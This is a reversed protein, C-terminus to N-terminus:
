WFPCWGSYMKSLNYTSTAMAILKNAQEKVSLVRGDKGFDTGNLKSAVRMKMENSSQNLDKPTVESGDRISDQDLSTGSDDPTSLPDHVFVSLVLILVSANERLISSMHTFSSYYLGDYGTAGMARVMMRTLRFPVVEPLLKRHMAREFCDGFDIHVVRGSYRDILLNSPHRDGLGIIYGVISTIATSISFTNIKKFWSEASQAKLWFSNSIDTDPVESFIKEIVQMKHIGQLYDFSTASLNNALEYEQIPNLDHLARYDEVINKLTETGPVWQVLGHSISLPIVCITQILNGNFSSEKNILSNVVKFFQMVREDLRLDEHGKLLYQYFYGDEGKIIVDKPAQKSNYVLFQGVFYQIRIIEKGPKYTGFVAIHFHTRQCFEKSIADMQITKIQKLEDNLKDQNEKCWKAINQIAPPKSPEQLKETSENYSLINNSPNNSLSIDSTLNKLLQALESIDAEHEKQFQVDMPCKAREPRGLNVVNELKERMKDIKNHNLHDIAEAILTSVNECMTVAARLLCKRMLIIELFEEPHTNPFEKIIENAAYSLKLVSSKKLVFLSFILEHYHVKLLETVIDHVFKAVDDSSHSLQALIQPSAQLLLKPPLTEICKHATSKFIDALHANEFFINLLSVVDPFNPHISVCRTLGDIANTIYQSFNDKKLKSLSLNVDAWKRFVDVSLTATSTMESLIQAPLVLDNSERTNRRVRNGSNKQHSNIPSRKSLIASTPINPSPSNPRNLASFNSKAVKSFSDSSNFSSPFIISELITKLKELTDSSKNVNEDSLAWNVFIFKCRNQLEGDLKPILDNMETKAREKEGTSWHTIVNCVKVIDPSNTNFDPFLSQFASNHLKTELTTSKMSFFKIMNTDFAESFKIRNSLIVFWVDFDRPATKLRENWVELVKKGNRHSKEKNVNDTDNSQLLLKMESIEVLQQCQLMTEHQIQQNDALFAVPKSALLSFGNEIYDDVLKYDRKQLASMASFIKCIVSDAPAYRLTYDLQKWKGTRMSAEAFYSALLTKHQTKTLKNEFSPYLQMIEEWRALEALSQILGLFSNFDKTKYFKDKYSKEVEDWKRLKTLIETTNLSQRTMQVKNWIAEADPWSGLQVFLDIMTVIRTVEDSPKDLDLTSSLNFPIKALTATSPLKALSVTSKLSTLSINSNPNLNNLNFNTFFNSNPFDDENKHESEKTLLHLAFAAGGYRISAELLNKTDINLPAEVKDMFFLLKIIEHNVTDYTESSTLVDNFTKTIQEKAKESLLRWCSLFAVDFLKNALPTFNTCLGICSRISNSPSNQIITLMFSLLWQELHQERGLNPTLHRMVIAEESFVFKDSANNNEQDDIIPYKTRLKLNRQKKDYLLSENVSLPTYCRYNYLGKEMDNLIQNLEDTIMNREKLTDLIHQATKLFGKGLTKLIIYLLNYASSVTKNDDDFLGYTLARMIPGMYSYLNVSMMLSSLTQFAAVRVKPLSQECEIADCIQPVTLYLLDSAYIGLLAFTNFIKRSLSINCTKANDLCGILLCITQSAYPSFSDKVTYLLSLIVSIFVSALGPYTSFNNIIFDLTPKVFPAINMGSNRILSVYLSLYIKLEKVSSNDNFTDNDLAIDNLSNSNPNFNDNNNMVELLRTVFNDFQPLTSLNPSDFIKVLASVAEIHYDKLTDDKFIEIVSSAAFATEYQKRFSPDGIILWSDDIEDENNDKGPHFFQRTLSEEIISPAKRLIVQPKQHLEIVGIAGIVQLLAMKEKRSDTTALLSSCSSMILPAKARYSLTSAPASLLTYLLNLISLVLSRNTEPLLENCLFDILFDSHKSVQEPDLPALLSIADVIGILFHIYSKAELFNSFHKQKTAYKDIHTQFAQVAIDMFSDSYASITKESATVLEPLIRAVRARQRISPVHRFIFFADLMTSRTISAAYVPNYKSLKALITLAIKRVTVADDNVFVQIFKMNEPSAFSKEINENLVNLASARVDLSSDYLALHFIKDILQERSIISLKRKECMIAINYLAKPVMERTQLNFTKSDTSNISEINNLIGTLDENRLISPSINALIKLVLSPNDMKLEELLRHSLFSCFNENISNINDVNNQIIDCLTIIFDSYDENIPYNIILNLFENSLPLVNEKFRKLASNLFKFPSLSNSILEFCFAKFVEIKQLVTDPINELLMCLADVIEYPFELILKKTRELVEDSCYKVFQVPDVSSLACIVQYASHQVILPHGESHDDIYSYIILFKPVFFQPYALILSKFLLMSAHVRITETFSLLKTAVQFFFDMFANMESSAYQFIANAFNYIAEATAELVNISEHSLLLWIISQLKPFFVVVNSGANFALSTIMHAAALHHSRRGKSSAWGTLRTFLHTIYHSQEIGPHHILLGSCWSTFKVSEFDSQPLLLDNLRILQNFDDYGFVHLSIIGIAGRIKDSRSRSKVLQRILAIYDQIYSNFSTNSMRMMETYFTHYYDKYTNIMEACTAPIPLSSVNM